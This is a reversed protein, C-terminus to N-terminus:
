TNPCVLLGLMCPGDSARRNIFGNGLDTFLCFNHESNMMWLGSRVTFSPFLRPRFTSFLKLNEEKEDEGNSILKSWVQFRNEFCKLGMESEKWWGFGMEVEEVVGCSVQIGEWQVVGVFGYWDSARGRRGIGLDRRWSWRQDFGLEVIPTAGACLYLNKEGDDWLWIQSDSMEKTSKRQNIAKRQQKLWCM